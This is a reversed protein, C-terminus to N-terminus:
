GWGGTYDDGTGNGDGAPSAAFGKEIAVEIVEMLPAEYHTKNNQVIIGKHGRLGWFFAIIYLLYPTPVIDAKDWV